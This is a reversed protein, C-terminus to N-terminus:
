HCECLGGNYGYPGSMGPPDENNYHEGRVGHWLDSWGGAIDFNIPIGCCDCIAVDTDQGHGAMWVLLQGPGDVDLDAVADAPAQHINLFGTGECRTCPQSM